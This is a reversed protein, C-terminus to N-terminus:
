NWFVLWLTVTDGVTKLFVPDGTKNETVRTYGDVYFSGLKWGFHPDDDKIKQNQSYGTDHGANVAEGLYHKTENVSQAASYPMLVSAAVILAAIFCVARSMKKVTGM